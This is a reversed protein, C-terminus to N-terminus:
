YNGNCCCHGNKFIHWTAADRLRIERKTALSMLAMHTHCDGCVRLNNFIIIPEDPALEMLGYYLAYRESHQCLDEIKEMESKDKSVWSTDPHYGYQTILVELMQKVFTHIRNVAPHDREHAHFTHMQGNVGIWSMAPIKKVNQQQMSQLLTSHEQWHGLKAYINAMLVFRSAEQPDLEQIKNAVRKARSKDHRLRCAGLLTAWAMIHPPSLSVAIREANELDGARGLADVLICYHHVNPAVGYLKEMSQLLEQVKQPQLAHSYAHMLAGISVADMEQQNQEMQQVVQLAADLMRANGFSDIM